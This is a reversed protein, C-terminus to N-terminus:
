SRAPQFAAEGVYEPNAAPEHEEQHDDEEGPLDNQGEQQGDEQGVQQQREDLGHGFATSAAPARRPHQRNKEGERGEDAHERDRHQYQRRQQGSLRVTKSPNQEATAALLRLDGMAQAGSKLVPAVTDVPGTDKRGTNLLRQILFGTVEDAAQAIGGGGGDACRQSKEGLQELQDRHRQQSEVHQEVSRTQSMLNPGEKWDRLLLRGRLQHTTPISDEALVDSTLQDDAQKDAHDDGDTQPHHPQFRCQQNPCDRKEDLRDRKEPRQNPARQGYQQRQGLAGRAARQWEDDGDKREDGLLDVAM